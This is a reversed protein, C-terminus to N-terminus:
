ENNDDKQGVAEQWELVEHLEVLDTPVDHTLAIDEETDSM